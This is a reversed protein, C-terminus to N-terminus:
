WCDCIKREKEKHKQAKIKPFLDKERVWTENGHQIETKKETPVSFQSLPPLFILNQKM